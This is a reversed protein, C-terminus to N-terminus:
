QRGWSHWDTVFGCSHINGRYKGGPCFLIRHAPVAYDATSGYLRRCFSRLYLLSRRFRIRALPIIACSACFQASCEIALANHQGTVSIPSTSNDGIFDGHCSSFKVWGANLQLEYLARLLCRWDNAKTREVMSISLLPNLNRSSASWVFHINEFM